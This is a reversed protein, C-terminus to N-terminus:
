TYIVIRELGSWRSKTMTYEGTNNNINAVYLYRDGATVEDGTFQYKDGNKKYFGDYESSPTFLVTLISFSQPTTFKTIPNAYSGGYGNEVVAENNYIDGQYIESSGQYVMRTLIRTWDNISAVDVTVKSYGDANDSSANYEGNESVSKEILTASGGGGGGAANIIKEYYQEKRTIPELNYPM